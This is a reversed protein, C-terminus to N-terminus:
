QQFRAPASVLASASTSFVATRAVGALNATKGLELNGDMRFNPLGGHDIGDAVLDELIADILVMDEYTNGKAKADIM